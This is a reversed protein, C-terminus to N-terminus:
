QLNRAYFNGHGSRLKTNSKGNIIKVFATRKM